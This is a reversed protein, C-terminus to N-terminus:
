AKRVSRKAKRAPQASTKAKAKKKRKVPAAVVAKSKVGSRKRKKMHREIDSVTKPAAETMNHCGSKTVVVDDEIRIGIGRWKAAVQRNNPSVYIGPEITMVMGPELVRWEDEIKYNGVDHVDMGLWHGARHMYFAKYTELEIQENLEGKLLGLDILGQTIVEVTADHPHNWHNGPKVCDIAALQAELTVEYLAQQEKSFKGNAPFTRTIDAAYHQLECGADILVLDGDKIQCNNDTYHLVCANNGAGVISNYAPAKAGYRSFTYLYESELQFEMMGPECCQMARAHAEVSIDAAAQMIRLEAASKFLRMDHLLHDLDLFEGPPHAGAREKSRIINVWDMMI